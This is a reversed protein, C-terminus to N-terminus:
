PSTLVALQKQLELQHDLQLQTLRREYDSQAQLQWEELEKQLQNIRQLIGLQEEGDLSVLVLQLQLNLIEQGIRTQVGEAEEEVEKRLEKSADFLKQAQARRMQAMQELLLEYSSFSSFEEEQISVEAVVPTVTTEETPLVLLSGTLCLAVLCIAVLQFRTLMARVLGM